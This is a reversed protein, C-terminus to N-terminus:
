LVLVRNFINGNNNYLYIQRANRRIHSKESNPDSRNDTNADNLWLATVLSKILSCNILDVFFM